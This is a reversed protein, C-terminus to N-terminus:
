PTTSVTRNKSIMPQYLLIQSLKPSILEVPSVFRIVRYRRTFLGQESHPHKGFASVARSTAEVTASVARASDAAKPFLWLMSAM